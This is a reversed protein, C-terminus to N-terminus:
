LFIFLVCMAPSIIKRSKKVYLILVQYVTLTTINCTNLWKCYAVLTTFLISIFIIKQRQLDCYQWIKLNVEDFRNLDSCFKESPESTKSSKPSPVNVLFTLCNNVLQISQYHIGSARGAAQNAIPFCYMTVGLQTIAM